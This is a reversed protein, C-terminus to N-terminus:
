AREVGSNAEPLGSARRHEVQVPPLYMADTVQQGAISLLVGFGRGM